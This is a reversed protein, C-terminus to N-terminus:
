PLQFVRFFAASPSILNTVSISTGAAVNTRLSTWTNTNAVSNRTQLVVSKGATIGSVDFVFQGGTQRGNSILLSPALVTITISNSSVGDGYDVADAMLTYTGPGLNSVPVTFPGSLLGNLYNTGLWFDVGILHDPDTDQADVTFNFSAPATFVANNTPNTIKCTPPINVYIIGSNGQGDDYFYYGAGVLTVSATSGQHPLYLTGAAWNYSHVAYPGADDAIFTILENTLVNLTSPSPGAASLHITGASASSAVTLLVVCAACFFNLIASRHMRGVSHIPNM